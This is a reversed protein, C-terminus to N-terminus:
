MMYVEGKNGGQVFDKSLGQAQIDAAQDDQFIWIFHNQEPKNLFNPGLPANIALPLVGFFYLAKECAIVFFFVCINGKTRIDLAFSPHILSSLQVSAIVSFIVQLQGHFRQAYLLKFVKGKM